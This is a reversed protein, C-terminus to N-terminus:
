CQKLNLNNFSPVSNKVFYPQAPQHILLLVPTIMNMGLKRIIQLLLNRTWFVLITTPISLSKRPAIQYRDAVERSIFNQYLAM